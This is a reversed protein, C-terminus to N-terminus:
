LVDRLCQCIDEILKNSMDYYTPLYFGRKAIDEANPLSIQKGNSTAATYMPQLHLPLFYDRTEYGGDALAQRLQKRTDKSDALVGFVWPADLGHQNLPMPTLQPISQLENRYKRALRNRDSMVKPIQAIAPTVLAAQLGSMKHNGCGELHVFHYEKTFGHNIYSDAREKLDEEERTSIIFGGDGSTIAKNAYLSACAFDGFTGVLKGGCETGIAEAIDEIFILNKERCFRQLEMSNAPVGYTHTVILARSKPTIKEAYEKVSPNLEGSPACDVFVPNAKVSLVANLVAVMTFAPILVDQGEGINALKLANALASYGSSCAKAFPVGYFMCLEREMDSVVSTASSILGDDIAKAVREKAGEAIFPRSVQVTFGGTPRKPEPDPLCRLVEPPLHTLRSEGRSGMLITLQTPTSHANRMFSQYQGGVGPGGGYILLWKYLEAYGACSTRSWVDKCYKKAFKPIIKCINNDKKM